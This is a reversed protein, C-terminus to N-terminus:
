PERTNKHGLTRFGDAPAGSQLWAIADETPNDPNIWCLRRLRPVSDSASRFCSRVTEDLAAVRMGSALATEVLHIDKLMAERQSGHAAAQVIRQRLKHDEPDELPQIKKRAFMSRRWQSAFASQHENWETTLQPSFVARHCVDLVALLFDRSRKGTPHVADDGGAARAVSADIVLRQSRSRSM